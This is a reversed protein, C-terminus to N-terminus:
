CQISLIINETSPIFCNKISVKKDAAQDSTKEKLSQWYNIVTQTQQQIQPEPHAWLNFLILGNNNLAQQLNQQFAKAIFPPPVGDDDFLDVIIIDYRRAPNQLYILADEHSVEIEPTKPLYFYDYAVDIVSQRLEVIHIQLQPQLAHLHSAISGGGMGLMLVNAGGFQALHELIQSEIAQQYEFALTMPADFYYRSQEVPTDFFLSRYTKYDVVKIQGFEDHDQYLIEVNEMSVM